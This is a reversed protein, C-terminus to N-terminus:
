EILRKYLDLYRQGMIEVTYNNKTREYANIGKEEKKLYAEEIASKMSKCDKPNCFTVENETFLERFVEIDSCVCSKKALAAEILALGFGETISPMLYVDYYQLYDQANDKFGLFYCRDAVGSKNAINILAKKKKGDGIIIFAYDNLYKMTSIVYQLGKKMTNLSANAGIIKINKNKLATIIKQDDGDIPFYKVIPRGNYIYTIKNKKIYKHYYDNMMTSTLVVVKDQNRIFYLWVWRYLLSVVIGYYHRLESRIDCHMTTVTKCKIKKQNKWIYKNPRYGHSHIIDYKDFDIQYSTNIRYIPCDFEIKKKDDFYYVDVDVNNKIQSIIDKAVVIPGSRILSPLIFAIRM